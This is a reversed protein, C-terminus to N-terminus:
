EEHKKPQQARRQKTIIFHSLDPSKSISSLRSNVLQKAERKIQLFAFEVSEATVIRVEPSPQWRLEEKRISVDNTAINCHFGKLKIPQDPTDAVVGVFEGSSLTAIKSPPVALDLHYSESSSSDRPTITTSHKEQLIRGFRESVLRASDGSVQGCILNAPLNFIADAHGRDIGV